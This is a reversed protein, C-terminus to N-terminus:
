FGTWHNPIKLGDMRLCKRAKFFCPFELPQLFMGAGLISRKKSFFSRDEGEEHDIEYAIRAKGNAVDDHSETYIVRQFANGNFSKEILNKVQLMDRDADNPTIIQARIVQVFETDWQADFGAGGEGVWKVVWANRGIDEAVTIKGPFRENKSGNIWQFLSWGDGLSDDSAVHDVKHISATSDFRAGDLKFEDLWMM